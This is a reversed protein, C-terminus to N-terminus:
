CWGHLEWLKRRWLMGAPTYKTVRPGPVCALCVVFILVAPAGAAVILGELVSITQPVLPFSISLNVPSFPRHYPTRSAFLRSAGAILSCVM